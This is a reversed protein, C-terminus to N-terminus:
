EIQEAKNLKIIKEIILEDLEAPGSDASADHTHTHTLTLRRLRTSSDGATVM